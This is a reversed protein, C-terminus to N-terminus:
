APQLQAEGSQPNAAPHRRDLLGADIALTLTRSDMANVARVAEQIRSQMEDTTM